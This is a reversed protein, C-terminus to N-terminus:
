VSSIAESQQGLLFSWTVLMRQVKPHELILVTNDLLAVMFDKIQVFASGESPM